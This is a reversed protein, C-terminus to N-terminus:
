RPGAVLMVLELVRLARGRGQGLEHQQLLVADPQCRRRAVRAATRGAALPGRVDFLITCAMLLRGRAAMGARGPTERTASRNLGAAHDITNLSQKSSRSETSTPSCCEEGGGHV